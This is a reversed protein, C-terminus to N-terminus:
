RRQQKTALCHICLCIDLEMVIEATVDVAALFSTQIEGLFARVTLGHCHRHFMEVNVTEAAIEEEDIEVEYRPALREAASIELYRPFEAEPLTGRDFTEGGVDLVVASQVTVAPGIVIGVQESRGVAEVALVPRERARHSRHVLDDRAIGLIHVIELEGTHPVPGEALAHQAEVAERVEPHLVARPLKARLTVLLAVAGIEYEYALRLEPEVEVGQLCHLLAVQAHASLQLYARIEEGGACM